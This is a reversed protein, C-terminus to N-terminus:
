KPVSPFWLTESPEISLWGSPFGMVTEAFELSMRGGCLTDLSPSKAGAYRERHDHPEGNQGSGYAQATLTPWLSSAPEVIRREAILRRLRSRYRRMAPGNWPEACKMSGDAPTAQPTRSSSGDPGCSESSASSNSGYAAEIVTWALAELARSTRAPFGEACSMSPPSTPLTRAECM